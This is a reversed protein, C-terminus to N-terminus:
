VDQSTACIFSDPRDPHKLRQIIVWGSNLLEAAEEIDQAEHLHKFSWYIQSMSKEKRHPTGQRQTTHTPHCIVISNVKKRYLIEEGM